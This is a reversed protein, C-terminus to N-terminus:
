WIFPLKETKMSYSRRLTKGDVPIIEGETIDAIAEIWSLFCRKIEQPLLQSFVRGFTDHSPIGNSLELFQKFWKYKSKGFMEISVWEDAGCIVACIAIVFIDILKHRKQRDIRPDKISTFHSTISTEQRKKM